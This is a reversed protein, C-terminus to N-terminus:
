RGQSSSVRDGSRVEADEPLTVLGVARQSEVSQISVNAVFAGSRSVTMQVGERLGDNRGLNLEVLTRGAGDRRVDTVSGQVREALFVPGAGTTSTAVAGEGLRSLQQRADFLQEELARRALELVQREGELNAITEELQLQRRSSAVSESRLSGVESRYNENTMALTQSLVNLQAIQSNVAEVELTAQAVERRLRENEIERSGLEGRLRAIEGDRQQLDAELQERAEAASAAATAQQTSAIQLDTQLSEYAVRIRSTNAVYAVSLASLAVSLLAAFAVLIKTLIHM